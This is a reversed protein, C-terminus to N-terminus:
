DRRQEARGRGGSTMVSRSAPRSANASDSSGPRTRASRTAGSSAGSASAARTTSAMPPVSGSTASSHVPAPISIPPGLRYPEQLSPQQAVDPLEHRMPKRDSATRANSVLASTFFPALGIPWMHAARRRAAPGRARVAALVVSLPELLAGDEFFLSPPLKHCWGAPHTIYRRLMPVPPTSRFLVPECGNYRGVLCLACTDCPIGPEITVRDGPKLHTISPHVAIINSSPSILHSQESRVSGSDDYYLVYGCIGTSRIEVVVEGKELAAGSQIDAVPPQAENPRTTTRAMM